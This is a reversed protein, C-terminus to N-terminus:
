NQMNQIIYHIALSNRHTNWYYYYYLETSWFNRLVNYQKISITPNTHKDSERYHMNTDQICIHDTYENENSPASLMKTIILNCQSRLSLMEIRYKYETTKHQTHERCHLTIYTSIYYM